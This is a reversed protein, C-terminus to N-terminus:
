QSYVHGFGGCRESAGCVELSVIWRRRAEVMDGGMGKVYRVPIDLDKPYGDEALEVGAKGNGAAPLESHSTLVDAPADAAAHEAGVVMDPKFATEEGDAFSSM